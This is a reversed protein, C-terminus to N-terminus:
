SNNTLYIQGSGETSTGGQIWRARSGLAIGNVSCTIGVDSVTAEEVVVNNLTFNQSYSTTSQDPLTISSGSFITTEQIEILGNNTEVSGSVKIQTLTGGLLEISGQMTSVTVTGTIQRNNSDYSLARIRVYFNPLILDTTKIVLPNNFTLQTVQGYGSPLEYIVENNNSDILKIHNTPYNNATKLQVIENEATVVRNTLDTIQQQSAGSGQGSDQGSGGGVAEAIVSVASPDQAISAAVNASISDIYSKIIGFLQKLNLKYNEGNYVCPIDLPNSVGTIDDMTSCSKQPIQSIKLDQM